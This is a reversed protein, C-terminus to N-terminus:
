RNQKAKREIIIHPFSYVSGDIFPGQYASANLIVDSGAVMYVESQPFNEKLVRLDDTSAINVQADEPYLFVNLEEAISM